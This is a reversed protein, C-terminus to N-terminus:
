FLSKYFCSAYFMYYSIGSQGAAWLLHAHRPLCLLHLPYMHAPQGVVQVSAQAMSSLLVGWMRYHSQLAESGASHCLFLSRSLTFSFLLQYLITFISMKLKEWGSSLGHNKWPKLLPTWREGSTHWSLEGGKGGSWSCLLGCWTSCHLCLAASTGVRRFCALRLVESSESTGTWRSLINQELFTYGRVQDSETLMWLVFGIVAPYLMSTTYFGLWAFYM